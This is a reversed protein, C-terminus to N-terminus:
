RYGGDPGEIHFHLAFQSQDTDETQSYQIDVWAKFRISPVSQSLATTELIILSASVRTSYILM